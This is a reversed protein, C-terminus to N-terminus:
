EGRRRLQRDLEDLKKRALADDGAFAAQEAERQLRELEKPIAQGLRRSTALSRASKAVREYTVQEKRVSELMPPMLHDAAVGGLQASISAALALTIWNLKRRLVPSEDDIPVASRLFPEKSEDWSASMQPEPVPPLGIDVTPRSDLDSAHTGEPLTDEVDLPTPIRPASLDSDYVSGVIRKEIDWPPSAGLL